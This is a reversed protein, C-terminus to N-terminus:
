NIPVFPAIPKPIIGVNLTQARMQIKKDDFHSTVLISQNNLKFKEIIDLGNLLSGVFEYDILVLLKENSNILNSELCSKMEKLQTFYMVTLQNKTYIQLREKWLWHISPDDDLIIVKNLASFSICKVFWIPPNSQPLTITVETGTNFESKIKFDGNFSRITNIAHYVGLGNGSTKSSTKGYTFGYVGVKNLLDNPIGTGDDKICVMINNNKSHISITIHHKLTSFSELSNNILNSLVRNFESIKLMSFLGYAKEIELDISINTSTGLQVRMETVLQEVLTVIMVNEFNSNTNLKSENNEAKKQLVNAIDTIRQISTRMLVRQKEPLTTAASLLLNLCALPSRIDHAVQKAARVEAEYSANKKVDTNMKKLTKCLHKIEQVSKDSSEFQEIKGPGLNLVLENLPSIFGQKIRKLLFYIAICLITLEFLIPFILEYFVDMNSKKQSLFLKLIAKKENDINLTHETGSDNKDIVGATFTKNENALIVGVNRIESIEQILSTIIDNDGILIDGTLQNQYIEFTANLYQEQIEQLRLSANRQVQISNFIVVFLTIITLLITTEYFLKKIGM